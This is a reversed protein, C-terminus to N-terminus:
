NNEKDLENKINKFLDALESLLKKDVKPNNFVAVDDGIVTRRPIYGLYEEKKELAEIFDKSM